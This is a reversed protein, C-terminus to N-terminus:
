IEDCVHQGATEKDGDSFPIQPMVDMIGDMMATCERIQQMVKADNVERGFAVAMQQAQDRKDGKCLSRIEDEKKLSRQELAELEAQDIKSMCVQMKQGQEIMRQMDAESMGQFSNQANAAVPLVMLCAAIFRKM